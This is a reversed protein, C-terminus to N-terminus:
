FHPREDIVELEAYDSVSRPDNVWDADVTVELELFVKQEFHKELSQRAKSGLEKIKSGAKGVVIGKHQMRGVIILADICVIGPNFVITDVKVALHYPLEAGLCRFAQERILESCVFKQSRDTLDDAPYLWPGDPLRQTVIALIEELSEKRKTSILFPYDGVLRSGAEAGVEDKASQMFQQCRLIPSDLMERKLKDTKNLCLLVPGQANKLVSKFFDYDPEFSEEEADLLYIVVDAQDLVSWAAKNMLSNLAVKKVTRHIGPTDLFLMQSTDQIRIGLIRARTTQPKNSVGAIKQGVLTNLLSSKGANPRGLIAIYGCKQTM